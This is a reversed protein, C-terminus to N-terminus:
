CKLQEQLDTLSPESFRAINCENILKKVKSRLRPIWWEDRIVAMTNAVGLHRIQEHTNAILKEAFVGGEIYTPNYDRIRGKCKLIGTNEKVLEWGPAQLNSSM